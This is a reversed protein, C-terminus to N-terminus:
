TVATAHSVAHGCWECVVGCYLTCSTVVVKVVLCSLQCPCPSACTICVRAWYPEPGQDLWPKCGSAALSCVRAWGLLWAHQVCRKFNANRVPDQTLMRVPDQTLLSHVTRHHPGHTLPSYPCDQLICVCPQGVVFGAGGESARDEPAAADMWVHWTFCLSQAQDCRDGCADALWPM